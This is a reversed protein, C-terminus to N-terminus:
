NFRIARWAERASLAAAHGDCFLANLTQASPGNGVGRKAHRNFDLSFATLDARVPFPVPGDPQYRWKMGPTQQIGLIGAVSEIILARESPRKYDGDKAYIGRDIPQGSVVTQRDLLLMGSADDMDCPAFPFRNWAYGPHRGDNVVLLPGVPTVRQWSPCGWIANNGNRIEDHGIQPEHATSMTGNYNIEGFAIVGGVDVGVRGVVYKGIFDHWRKGRNVPAAAATWGHIQPPWHRGNDVGYLFVAAGLQRMNSLCRVREAWRKAELLAPLLVAILLAIIGIVVLLEVLTFGRSTRVVPRNM